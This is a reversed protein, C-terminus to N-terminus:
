TKRKKSSFGILVLGALLMAYTEPEPVQSVLAVGEVWEAQSNISNGNNDNLRLSVNLIDAVVISGFNFVTQEGNNVESADRNSNRVFGVDYGTPVNPNTTSAVFTGIPTNRTSLDPAAPFVGGFDFAIGNVGNNPALFTNTADDRITFDFSTDDFDLFAFIGNSTQTAFSWTHIAANANLISFSLLFGLIFRSVKTMNLQGKM